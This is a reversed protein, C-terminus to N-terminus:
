YRFTMQPVSVVTIIINQLYTSEPLGLSYCFPDSGLKVQSCKKGLAENADGTSWKICNLCQRSVWLIAVTLFM